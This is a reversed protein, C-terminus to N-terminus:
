KNKWGIAARAIDDLPRAILPFINARSVRHKYELVLFTNNLYVKVDCIAATTM